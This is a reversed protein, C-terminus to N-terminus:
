PVAGYLRQSIGQRPQQPNASPSRACTLVGPMESPVTCDRKRSERGAECRCQANFSLGTSGGLYTVRIGPPTPPAAGHPTGRDRDSSRPPRELCRGRFTHSLASSFWRASCSFSPRLSSRRYTVLSRDASAPLNGMRRLFTDSGAGYPTRPPNQFSLTM